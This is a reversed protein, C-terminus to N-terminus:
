LEVDVECVDTVCTYVSGRVYAQNIM